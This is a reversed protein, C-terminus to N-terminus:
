SDDSVKGPALPRRPRPPANLLFDPRMGRAYTDFNRSARELSREMNVDTVGAIHPTAIVQPLQLIPHRPDVPEQWFVDLGAGGLRGSRLAAELAETKVLGARAINVLFAGPKMAAFAAEDMMDQNREGARAALIVCDAERLAQHLADAGFVQVGEPGGKSVDQRVGVLRMGFARLRVALATGIDGLGVICAVKGLLAMGQPQAWATGQKLSQEALPFRRALALLLFIAHEAVSEANGTASARMHAVWVGLRTAAPVDVNEYGTGITQVFGVSSSELVERDIVGGATMLAEVGELDLPRSTGLFLVEHATLKAALREAFPRYDSSRSIFAIRM